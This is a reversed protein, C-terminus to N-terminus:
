ANAVGVDQQSIRGTKVPRGDALEDNGRHEMEKATQVGAHTLLMAYIAESWVMCASTDDSFQPNQQFGLAHRAILGFDEATADVMRTFSTMATGYGM